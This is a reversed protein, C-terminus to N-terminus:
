NNNVPLLVVFKTHLCTPDLFLEGKHADIIGKSISLGLGTGKGVDKTTFFPEMLRQAVEHPIGNGSDIFEIRIQNREPFHKFKVKVWKESQVAIADFSNSLLNFFVQSIETSRCRINVNPIADVILQISNIRFREACVLIADDVISSLTELLFPDQNGSRSFTKLGRIIQSIREATSIIKKLSQSIETSNSNANILQKEVGYAKGIIIMLPNNIEHAIGSAMVGLAAMKSSQILQIRNAKIKEENEIREIARTSLVQWTVFILTWLFLLSICIWNLLESIRQLLFNESSLVIVKWGLEKQTVEARLWNENKLKLTKNLDETTFNLLSQKDNGEVINKRKYFEDKFPHALLRGNRDEISLIDQDSHQAKLIINQLQPLIMDVSIEGLMKKDLGYFARVNSAYVLGNDFYPDIFKSQGAETRALRYWEQNVYNYKETAWEYTLIGPRHVYPGFFKVKKDFEFPEYWIGIGFILENPSARLLQLLTEEIEKKNLKKDNISEQVFRAVLNSVTTFDDLKKLITEARSRQEKKALELESTRFQMFFAGLGVSIVLGFVLLGIKPNM